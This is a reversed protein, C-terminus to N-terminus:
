SVFAKLFDPIDMPGRNLVAPSGHLRLLRRLELFLIRFLVLPM